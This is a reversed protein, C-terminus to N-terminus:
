MAATSREPIMVQGLAQLHLQQLSATVNCSQLPANGGHSWGHTDSM